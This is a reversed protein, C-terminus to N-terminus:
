ICCPSVIPAEVANWTDNKIWNDLAWLPQLNSFHFCQRVQDPDKFDFSSCPRKHDVHWGHVGYNDWTMGPQFLRQIHAQLDELSCGVLSMTPAPKARGALIHSLRSSMHYRIALVPNERIRKKKNERNNKNVRDPNAKNWATTRKREREPNAQRYAKQRVKRRAVLHPKKSKSKKCSRCQAEREDLNNQSPCKRRKRYFEELPLNLNCCVCIKM